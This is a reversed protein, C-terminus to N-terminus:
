SDCCCKKHRISKYYILLGILGIKCNNNKPGNDAVISLRSNIDSDIISQPIDVVNKIDKMFRKLLWHLIM